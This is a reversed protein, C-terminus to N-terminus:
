SLGTVGTSKFVHNNIICEVKVFEGYANGPFAWLKIVKIPSAATTTLTSEDIEMRSTGSAADGATALINYNGFNGTLVTGSGSSANDMQAMYITDPHDSVLIIAGSSAASISLCVGIIQTSTAAGVDITGATTVILIDGPYVATNAAALTYSNTRFPGRIPKFGLPQDPNAM